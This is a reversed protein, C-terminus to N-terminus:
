LVFFTGKEGKYIYIYIYIYIRSSPFNYSPSKRLVERLWETEEGDVMSMDSILFHKYFYKAFHHLNIINDYVAKTRIQVWNAFKIKQSATSKEKFRTHIDYFCKKKMFLYWTFHENRRCVKFPHKHFCNCLFAPNPPFIADNQLQWFSFTRHFFQPLFSLLFDPSPQNCDNWANRRCSWWIHVNRICM